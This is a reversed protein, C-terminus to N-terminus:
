GPGSRPDPRPDADSPGTMHIARGTRYSEIVAHALRVVRTGDELPIPFAMGGRIAAIFDDVLRQSALDHEYVSMPYHRFGPHRVMPGTALRTLANLWRPRFGPWGTIRARGEDLVHVNDHVQGETGYIALTNRQPGRSAITMTTHGVLGSPFQLSVTVTDVDPYDEWGRHGAFASVSSPMEDAVWCLLDLTHSLGGLVINQPHDPQIRWDHYATARERMDHIYDAAVVMPRGLRGERLLARANRFAPIYRMQHHVGVVLESDGALAEAEECQAVTHFAPKEVLTHRGAEMSRRFGDGHTHDPTCISVAEVDAVAEEVRDTWRIGLGDLQARDGDGPYPEYVRTVRVGPVRSFRKVHARGAGGYGLVAVRIEDSERGSERATGSV